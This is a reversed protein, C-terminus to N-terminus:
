VKAVVVRDVEDCPDLEGWYPDTASKSFTLVGSDSHIRMWHMNTSRESLLRNCFDPRLQAFVRDTSVLIVEFQM